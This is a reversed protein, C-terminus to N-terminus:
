HSRPPAALTLLALSGLLQCGAVVFPHLTPVHRPEPFLTHLPQWGDVTRVWEIPESTVGSQEIPLRGAATVAALILLTLLM